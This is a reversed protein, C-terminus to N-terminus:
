RSWRRWRRPSAASRTFLHQRAGLPLLRSGDSQAAARERDRGARPPRGAHALADAFDALLDADNPNLEVARTFCFLSEQHRKRYLNAFGAERHGRADDPDREIAWAALRLADELLDPAPAGRVLWELSHTRALRRLHGRLQRRAAGGRPVPQAGAAPGQPGHEAGVAAGGPVPPLRLRRLADRAAGPACARDRRGDLVRTAGLDGTSAACITGRCAWRPCGSCRTPSRTPSGSPSVCSTAWRRGPRSCRTTAGRRRATRRGRGCGSLLSTHAAIIRFSRYRSLGVTVDELLAYARSQAWKEFGTAPPLIAVRPRDRGIGARGDVPQRHPGVEAPVMPAAAQLHREAVAVTEPSPDVGLEARLVARCTNYARRAATNDGILAHARIMGRYAAEHTNDRQLLRTAVAIALEPDVADSDLLSSAASTWTFRFRQRESLLWDDLALEGTKVGELLDKDYRCLLASLMPWERRRALGAPDADTWEVLDIAIGADLLRVWEGEVGILMLDANRQARVIRSLLQRLNANAQAPEATSWLLDRIQSRVLRRNPTLALLAAIFYAKDPIQIATTGAYLAPTGILELRASPRAPPLDDVLGTGAVDVNTEMVQYVRM